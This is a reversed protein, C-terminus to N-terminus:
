PYATRYFGAGGVPAPALFTALGDPGVQTQGLTNWGGPPSASFQIRYTRGPIGAFRIRIGGNEPTVGLLNSTPAEDPTLRIVVRARASKQAPNAVEYEFADSRVDPPLNGLLVWSGSRTVTVGRGTTADVGTLELPANSPDTDNGVIESVPIKLPKGSSGNFEDDVATPTGPDITLTTAATSAEYLSHPSGVPEFPFPPLVTQGFYAMASYAGAPLDVSGLAAQGTFDTTSSVVRTGGPGDVVFLVNQEPLSRGTADVLNALITEPAGPRVSAPSPALSLTTPSRSLLFAASAHSAALTYSGRWRASLEIPISSPEHLLNIQVTAVGDAGTLALSQLAGIHFTLPQDPVPAGLSTLRAQLTARQGYVGSAPPAILEVVTAAPPIVPPATRNPVFFEGLNASMAVLGVGNVSQVIFRLDEPASADRPISGRWLMWDAPDQQLDLTRWVGSRPGSVSTYTVWTEQIGAAPNGIVQITFNINAADSSADVNSIQPPGALAPTAATDPIGDNNTDQTYTTVNASYFLRFEARSFTRLTGSDSGPDSRYQAPNVMLRTTGQDGDCLIGFYNPRWFKPPYLVDSLFAPHVGRIETTAASTLPIINLEDSYNGGRFGVGRLPLNPVGVSRTELPLVPEAPHATVGDSGSYWKATVQAPGNPQNPDSEANNLVLTHPTLVPDVTLDARHLGLVSGPATAYPVTANIVSPAAAAPLRAGPLNFGLMPLGFLTAQFLAKEHIGRLDTTSELYERKARVLAKGITVPGAGSRLQRTFYLYLRESYELFDTDGYQYGTGAVLTMGLRAAIQAWDDRVTVGPIADGDVLNYGSHCGASYLLVNKFFGSPADLLRAAPFVTKYDAALTSAASFHGALFLIDHRTGLMAAELDAATWSDPDSPALDSPAILRDPVIGTGAQLEAAIADAADQLFDYGTVLVGSPSPLVGGANELYADILTTIETASEVLRGVALDPLPIRSLKRSIECRSGYRDQSLFYNNRLSAQSTSFEFVPPIYDEEPGLLAEDPQRFFPIVGDGGVLVVYELANGARSREIIARIAEAVLNKGYPCQPNLDAQQNFFSVWTDGGVDVVAGVVEPRAALEAIKLELASRAPSSGVGTLRDLDTVILTRYGGAPAKVTSPPLPNGGADEPIATLDACVGPFLYVSVHFPRPDVVGQRGRVRIYFETDENWTNAVVGESLTGEFASVAIVSRTQASAYAEESFQAPSFQAPSFQAPSFQAPSFQAPSFQAPSFQAPAFADPSFQAPSFQAPSFQAPSFQAPSFQAPSFQAPSFAVPSFQAPSFQAPSFQAPSFADDAFEADILSLDEPNIIEQYTKAIDKFLVLDYNVNLEDLTVVVRSGPQIKFKFWRSEDQVQLPMRYEGQLVGAVDQLPIPLARPWVINDQPEDLVAGAGLSFFFLVGFSM